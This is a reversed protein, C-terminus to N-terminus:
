HDYLWVMAEDSFRLGLKEQLRISPRNTTVVHTHPVYGLRLQRKILAAELVRAIGRRRFEPLVQLLGMTGEAHTGIFGAPRGECFAGLMGAQIRETIYAEDFAYEYHRMVFSLADPSLARLVVDGRPPVDPGETELYACQMCDMRNPHAFREQLLGAFRPQHLAILAPRGAQELMKELVAASGASIMVAGAGRHRLIVGGDEAFLLEAEDRKVAELMDIHRLRDGTLYEVAKEANCVAM